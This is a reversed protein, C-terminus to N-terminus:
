GGRLSRCGGGPSHRGEWARHAACRWVRTRLMCCCLAGVPPAEEASSPSVGIGALQELWEDRRKLFQAYVSLSAPFRLRGLVDEAPTDQLSAEITELDERIALRDQM